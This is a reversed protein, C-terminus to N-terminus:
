HKCAALKVFDSETVMGIVKSDKDLVPLCGIKNEILLWAADSIDTDATTTIVKTKMFDSIPVNKLLEYQAETSVNTFATQLLDRQSIIGLLYGDQDVIPVHRVDNWEIVDQIRNMKKDPGVYFLETSMIDKVKM